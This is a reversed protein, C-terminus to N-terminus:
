RRGAMQRLRAMFQEQNSGVVPETAPERDIAAQPLVNGSPLTRVSTLLKTLAAEAEPKSLEGRHGALAIANVADVTEPARRRQRVLAENARRAEDRRAVWTEPDELLTILSSRNSRRQVNYLKWVLGQDERALERMARQVSRVTCHAVTAILDQPAKTTYTANDIFKSVALAVIKATPTWPCGEARIRSLVFLDSHL